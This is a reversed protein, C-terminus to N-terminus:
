SILMTSTSSYQLGATCQMDIRALMSAQSDFDCKQIKRLGKVWINEKEQLELMLAHMMATM